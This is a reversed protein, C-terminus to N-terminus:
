LASIYEIEEDTLNYLKYFEEDSFARDDGDPKVAKVKTLFDRGKGSLINTSNLILKFIKSNFFSCLFYIYEGTVIYCRDNTIYEHEDIIADMNESIARYIIKPKHFERWFAIKDAVEFWKNSAKRRAGPEGTQKLRDYGFGLLHQKIAPYDDINYHKAPYLAILYLGAWQYGTSNIDRGRLLPKIIEDSKPDNLILERRKEENIIFAENCGTAVGMYTKINWEALSTGKENMKKIVLQEIPNRIVWSDSLKFDIECSHKRIYEKINDLGKQNYIISQTKHKYPSNQIILINTDVTASNFRGGGLDILNIPNSNKIFYDRLSAGYGSKMWKNSTIYTLHGDKKLLNLGREYFLCYLDGQGSYTSYLPKKKNIIIPIVDSDNMKQLQVYPPNAIVIDFKEIGFM